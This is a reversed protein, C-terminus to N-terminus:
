AEAPSIQGLSEPTGMVSRGLAHGGYLHKYAERYLVATPNGRYRLDFEREVVSRETMMFDPTLEVPEFVARASRMMNEFADIPGSNWYATWYPSTWANMMRNRLGEGHVKDASWLVLHELYHALGEPGTRDVEGVPVFVRVEINKASTSPILYIKKFEGYDSLDLLDAYAISSCLLAFVVTILRVM